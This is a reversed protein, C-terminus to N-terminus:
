YLKEVMRNKHDRQKRTEETKEGCWLAEEIKPVSKTEEKGWKMKGRQKNKSVNNSLDSEYGNTM